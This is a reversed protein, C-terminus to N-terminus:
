RPPLRRRRAALVLGVFGLGLLAATGPEPVINHSGLVLMDIEPIYANGNIVAAVGDGAAIVAAITTLGPTLGSVDWIITGLRYTGPDMVPPMSPPEILCDFSSILGPTDLAIGGVPACSKQVTGVKNFSVGVGAWERVAAPVLGTDTDYAVSIGLGILPLPTTLIVDMCYGTSVSGGYYGGFFCGPGPDGPSISIGSPFTADRFLVDITIEARADNALLLLSALGALLAFPHPKSM